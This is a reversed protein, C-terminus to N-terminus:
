TENLNKFTVGEEVIDWLEEDIGTIHSYIKDKWWEFTAADGNFIPAKRGSYESHTNPNINDYNFPMKNTDMIESTSM